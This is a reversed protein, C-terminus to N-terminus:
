ESLTYIFGNCCSDFSTLIATISVVPFVGREESHVICQTGVNNKAKIQSPIDKIIRAVEEADGRDAARFIPLQQPVKNKNGM